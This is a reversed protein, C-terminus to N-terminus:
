SKATARPKRQQRHLAGGEPIFPAYLREAIYVVGMDSIDKWPAPYLMERGQISVTINQGDPLRLEASQLNGANFWGYGKKGVLAPGRNPIDTVEVDSLVCSKPGHLAELLGNNRLYQGCAEPATVIPQEARAQRLLEPYEAPTMKQTTPNMPLDSLQPEM